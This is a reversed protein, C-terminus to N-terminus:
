GVTLVLKGRPHGTESLWQAEGIQELPFTQAVPLSFRGAEILEGIEGLVQWARKSEPGGTMQVGTEQAGQYDAITVVNEPGGALEVLARLAGGGADDIARDVGEPSLERVRDVLGEGYTTAEAGAERLYQHNGHSATGIVEAGRERALQVTSIGVAGAAGNILVTQGKGVGLLELTREATEVAVPLAAAAVFDLSPPILAYHEVLAFEAAGAGGVASGFVEDGASVDSVGEGIEDVIGAVELGATRPLEGGMLGQRFKWDAPNVGVARVAVRIQGAGAHPEPREVVQLVEPGGYSEYQIAKM